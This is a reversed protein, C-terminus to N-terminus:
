VLSWMYYSIWLLSLTLVNLIILQEKWVYKHYMLDFMNITCRRRWRSFMALRYTLTIRSLILACRIHMLICICSYVRAPTLVHSSYARTCAYALYCPMDMIPNHAARWHTSTSYLNCYLKYQVLTFWYITMIPFFNTRTRCLIWRNDWCWLPPYM